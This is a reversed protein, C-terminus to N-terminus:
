KKEQKLGSILSSTCLRKTIGLYQAAESLSLREPIPKQNFGKLISEIEEHISEKILAQLEEVTINRILISNEM